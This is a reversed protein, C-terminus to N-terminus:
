RLMFMGGALTAVVGKMELGVSTAMLRHAPLETAAMLMDLSAKGDNQRLVATFAQEEQTLEPFLTLQAAQAPAAEAGQWGMTQVVDAASTVLVARLSRILANCGASAMDAPRGPVAMVERGYDGALRATSLAGGREASEVVVVADALAAVIRNRQLFNVRDIRTRSMFETLLGGHACMEVATPRHLSPYIHDLGHALVGVTPLGAALAGRHAAIDIGYALGSVVLVGPVMQRLDACLRECWRRGHETCRRTGVVSVVRAADLPTTGKYYLVAPADDAVTLRSPYSETDTVTLVQIGHDRCFTLEQRCREMEADMRLLAQAMRVTCGPMVAQIDARADYVASASGMHSLLLRQLRANYPLVRALAMACLLERDSTM